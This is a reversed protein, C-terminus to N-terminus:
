FLMEQRPGSPLRIAPTRLGMCSPWAPDLRNGKRPVGSRPRWPLHSGPARSSRPPEWRSAPALRTIKQASDARRVQQALRRYGAAILLMERRAPPHTMEEAERRAEEARDLWHQADYQADTTKSSVEYGFGRGELSGRRRHPTAALGRWCWRKLKGRAFSWIKDPCWATLVATHNSSWTAQTRQQLSAVM